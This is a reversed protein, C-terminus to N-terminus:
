ALDSWLFVQERSFVRGSSVWIRGLSIVGFAFKSKPAFEGLFQEHEGIVRKTESLLNQEL